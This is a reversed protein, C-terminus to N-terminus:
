KDEGAGRRGRKRGGLGCLLSEDVSGVGEAEQHCQTGRRNPDTLM